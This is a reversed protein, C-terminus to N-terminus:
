PEDGGQEKGHEGDVDYVGSGVNGSKKWDCDSDVLDGDTFM